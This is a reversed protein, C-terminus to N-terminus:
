LTRIIKKNVKQSIKRAYDYSIDLIEAITEITEGKARLVFLDKEYNVFNCRALLYDIEDQTFDKVNM